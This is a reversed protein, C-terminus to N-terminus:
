LGLVRRLFAYNSAMYARTVPANAALSEFGHPAGPVLELQSEVGAEQLRAAYRQCEGSFLDLEGVGIWAPPLGSLDERRAAAAYAPLEPMGPPGGLYHSWGSRNSRNSWLKHRPRDLEERAATRDDLMPSFLAQGAPRVGGLDHIRQALVAALGGGASLGSIVIRAPSVGLEAASEQLWQWAELCDDIASPFPHEPALRHDISVVVLRLERAYDACERDNMSPSGVLLGGGHIWVLGAGSLAGEPRYIRLAAHRLQRDEVLVGGMPRARRRKAAAKVLRLFLRSHFPLPPIRRYVARLDPHVPAGGM